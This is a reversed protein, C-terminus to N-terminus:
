TTSAHGKQAVRAKHAEIHAHLARLHDDVVGAHCGPFRASLRAEMATLSEYLKEFYELNSGSAGVSTYIHRAQEAYSQPGIFNENDPTARFVLAQVTTGDDLTAPCFVKDYGARERYELQALEARMDSASVRFCAGWCRAEAPHEEEWSGGEPHRHGEVENARVRALEEATLLTVVRGRAEPTGRHDPSGQWFRRAYPVFADRQELIRPLGPKFILSGYGFLWEDPEASVPASAQECAVLQAPQQQEQQQEQQEQWDQQQQQQQSPEQPPPPPLSASSLSPQPLM